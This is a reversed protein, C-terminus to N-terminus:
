KVDWQDVNYFPTAGSLKVNTLRANVAWIDPDLWISLWYVKDYMIKTIQHFTEVRANFDVQTAQLQFLKDLEPDCIFQANVGSPSEDTPVESCLWYAIDPDPFATPVDSWEYIDLDGDLNSQYAIYHDQPSWAPDTADEEASTITRKNTGNVNM